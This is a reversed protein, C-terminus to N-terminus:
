DKKLSVSLDRKVFKDVVERRQSEKKLDNIFKEDKSPTNDLLEFGTEDNKSRAVIKGGKKKINDFNLESDSDSSSLLSAISSEDM